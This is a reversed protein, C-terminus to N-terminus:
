IKLFLHKQRREFGLSKWFSRAPINRNDICVMIPGSLLPPTLFKQQITRVLSQAIRQRRYSELVHIAEIFGLNQIKYWSFYPFIYAEAFAIVEGKQTKAVFCRYSSRNQVDQANKVWIQDANEKLAYIEKFQTHFRKHFNWHDRWIPVIQPLDDPEAEQIIISSPPEISSSLNQDVQIWQEQVCVFGKNQFMEIDQTQVIDRRIFMFRVRSRLIKMLHRLTQDKIKSNSFYYSQVQAIRDLASTPSYPLIWTEIYGVITSDKSKIMLVIYEEKHQHRQFSSVRRAEPNDSTLHYLSHLSSAKKAQLLWLKVLDNTVEPSASSLLEIKNFSDINDINPDNIKAIITM